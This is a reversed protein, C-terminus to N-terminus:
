LSTKSETLATSASTSLGASTNWTSTETSVSSSTFDTFAPTRTNLPNSPTSFSVAGYTSNFNGLESRKYVFWCPEIYNKSSNRAFVNCLVYDNPLYVVECWGDTVSGSTHTIKLCDSSFAGTSLDDIFCNYIINDTNTSGTSFVIETAAENISASGLRTDTPGSIDFGVIWQQTLSSDM